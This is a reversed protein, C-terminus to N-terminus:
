LVILDDMDDLEVQHIVNYIRYYNPYREAAAKLSFRVNELKLGKVKIMYAYNRLVKYMEDSTMTNLMSIIAISILDFRDMEDKSMSAPRPEFMTYIFLYTFHDFLICYINVIDQISLAINCRMIFRNVRHVIKDDVFASNAIMALTKAGNIGLIPSLRIAQINNVYQSIDMLIRSVEVDKNPLLYYDYTIKNICIIEERSLNLTGVVSLLINLFRKNTFLELLYQRETKLFQDYDLLLHYQRLIINKIETEDLSDINKIKYLIQDIKYEISEFVPPKRVDATSDETTSRNISPFLEEM